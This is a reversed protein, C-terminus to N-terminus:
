ASVTLTFIEPISFLIDAPPTIGEMCFFGLVISAPFGLVAVMPIGAPLNDCSYTQSEYLVTGFDFGHNCLDADDCCNRSAYTDLSVSKPNNVCGALSIEECTLDQITVSTVSECSSPVDPPDFPECYTGIDGLVDNCPTLPEPVPM